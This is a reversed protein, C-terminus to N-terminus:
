RLVLVGLLELSRRFGSFPIEDNWGSSEKKDISNLLNGAFKVLVFGGTDM